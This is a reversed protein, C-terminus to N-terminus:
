GKDYKVENDIMKRLLALGRSCRTRVAEIKVGLASSIDEYSMGYLYKMILVERYSESLSEVYGILKRADEKYILESAPTHNDVAMNSNLFQNLQEIKKSKNWLKLAANKTIKLVYSKEIIEDEDPIKYINKVISILADNIATKADNIDRLISYALDVMQREYKDYIRLFKNKEETTDLMSLYLSLM